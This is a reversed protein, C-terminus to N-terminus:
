PASRSIVEALSKALGKFQELGQEELTKVLISGIVVGDAIRAVAGAQALTSIGFGVAIKKGPLLTRLQCLEGKLEERIDQQIGTVALRSIYYVFSPDLKQYLQYREQDTTLSALLVVELGKEKVFNYFDEGEEPPLDVILIGDIGANKAERVFREYGFALIPNLYSFLLFPTTRGRRRVEAVQEFVKTLNTGNGLAKEAARQNIPGDAVPDSFPVGVEIIDAGAEVLAIMAQTSEQRNPHGAMIFPVFLAKGQNFANRIKM